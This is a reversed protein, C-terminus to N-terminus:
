PAYIGQQAFLADDTDGRTGNPGSDNLRVRFVQVVSREAEKITGPVLADASSEVACNAGIAADVTGICDVPVALEFDVTTAAESRAAGSDYDTLRLREVATLDTGAANPNYDAGTADQSHVDSLSASIAVDAEDALTALDGPVVELLASGASQAGFHASGSPAPPTCAGTGLPPSHGGNEPNALTGCQRFAPV